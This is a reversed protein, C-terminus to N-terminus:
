NNMTQSPLIIDKILITNKKGGVCFERTEGVHAGILAKGMPSGASVLNYQPGMDIAYGVLILRSEQQNNHEIIVGNGIKVVKRQELPKFVVARNLIDLLTRLRENSIASERLGLQFGEDHHGDQESGSECGSRISKVHTEEAEKIMKLLIQYQTKTLPVREM